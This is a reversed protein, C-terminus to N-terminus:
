SSIKDLLINIGRAKTYIEALEEEPDSYITIGGGVQFEFKEEDILLTRIAVSFECEKTGKFYGIVGSYIGRKWRDEMESCLKISEIKPTGTMSGPPLLSFLVDLNSLGKKKVGVVESSMHHIHAFSDLHFLDPVKVSGIECVRSFDNRMLDVIMLNESKNKESSALWEKQAKDELAGDRHISGKIPNSMMEGNESIKLFREPSSSIIYKGNGLNFFCSYPAPSIQCLELFMAFAEYVSLSREFESYFKRTLNAQFLRGIEEEKKIIKVKQMFQEDTMNSALDSHKLTLNYSQNSLAVKGFEVKSHRAFYSDPFTAWSKNSLSLSEKIAPDFNGAYEYGIYGFYYSDDSESVGELSNVYEEEVGYALVNKGEGHGTYLFCFKENNQALELAKKLM